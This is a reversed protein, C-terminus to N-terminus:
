IAAKRFRKASERHLKAFLRSAAEYSEIIMDSYFMVDEKSGEEKVEHYGSMLQKITKLNDLIDNNIKEVNSKGQNTVKM